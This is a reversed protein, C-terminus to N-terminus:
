KKILEKNCIKTITGHGILRAGESFKFTDGIQLKGIYLDSSIMTMEAKVEDGPFVVDKDIYVQQTSTMHPPYKDFELHPRYKSYAPLTRGGKESTLFILDAIFDTAKM